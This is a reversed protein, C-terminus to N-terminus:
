PYPSMPGAAEVLPPPNEKTRLDPFDILWQISMERGWDWPLKSKKWNNCRYCAATLNAVIHPGQKSLPIIHEIVLRGCEAVDRLCYACSTVSLIRRIDAATVDSPVALKRARRNHHHAKVKNPNERIWKKTNLRYKERHKERYAAQNAAVREPNDARWKTSMANYKEAHKERSRKLAARYKEPNEYYKEMKEKARKKGHKEQARRETAKVKEPNKTRWEADRKKGEDSKCRDSM